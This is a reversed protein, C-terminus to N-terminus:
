KIKLTRQLSNMGGNDETWVGTNALRIAYEIRNKLLDAPDAIRLYLDYDGAPIGALSLTENVELDILPKSKRLDIAMALPYLQGSSKSKLIIVANKKNYM